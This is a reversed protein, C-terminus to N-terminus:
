ASSVTSSMPSYPLEKKHYGRALGVARKYLDSSSDECFSAVLLIGCACRNECLRAVSLRARGSEFDKKNQQSTGTSSGTAWHTVRQRQVENRQLIM